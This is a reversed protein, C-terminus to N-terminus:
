VTVQPIVLIKVFSLNSVDNILWSFQKEIQSINELSIGIGSIQIARM